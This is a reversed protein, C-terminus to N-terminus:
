PPACVCSAGEWGATPLACWRSTPATQRRTALTPSSACAKPAVHRTHPTAQMQPRAPCWCPPRAHASPGRPWAVDAHGGVCRLLGEARKAHFYRKLGAVLRMRAEAQVEESWRVGGRENGGREGGGGGGGGEHAPPAAALEGGPVAGQRQELQEAVGTLPTSMSRRLVQAGAQWPKIDTAAALAQGVTGRGGSSPLTLSSAPGMASAATRPSHPSPSPSPPMSQQRVPVQSPEPTLLQSAGHPTAPDLLAAFWTTNRSGGAHTSVSPSGSSSRALSHRLLPAPPLPAALLETDELSEVSPATQLPAPPAIAVPAADRAAEVESSGGSSSGGRSDADGSAVGSSSSGGGGLLQGVHEVASPDAHSPLLSSRVLGHMGHPTTAAAGRGGGHPSQM